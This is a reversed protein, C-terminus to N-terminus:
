SATCSCLQGCLGNRLRLPGDMCASQWCGIHMLLTHMRSVAIDKALQPTDTCNHDQVWFVLICTFIPSSGATSCVAAAIIAAPGFGAMPALRAHQRRDHATGAVGVLNMMQTNSSIDASKRLQVAQLLHLVAVIAGLLM